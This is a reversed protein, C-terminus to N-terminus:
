AGPRMVESFSLSQENLKAHDAIWEIVQDEVVRAQLGNMLQPDRTYLEVVQEPEEYTSAITMLAESVRRPDLKIDNQRALESLLLGALVRRRASGMFPEIEVSRDKGQGANQTALARAENEILSQPVDLTSHADILKDVTAAKLRGMLMSKLERELNARIDLRFQEMSGDDVGFSKIFDVDVEPMQSEQIRIVKMSVKAQKGALAPVRVETPFDIDFEAEDDASLGILKDELAKSLAESGIITGIRDRGEAPHREDGSQASYEFLVMDGDAAAHEVANWNRRQQRLTDIMQDIDEDGVTAVHRTIELSGVDIAPIEPLVDFEATYQLEGNDAKGSTSISPQMAPRLNEQTMAEQFSSGILDSLIEGHVQAGYRQEIIKQPVKGPRFGKIHATKTMEQLRMRVKSELQDAPLTVVVKRGLTGVNEVSVQM